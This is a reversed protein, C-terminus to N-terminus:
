FQDQVNSGLAKWHDFRPWPGLRYWEICKRELRKRQSALASVHRYITHLRRATLSIIRCLTNACSCMGYERVSKGTTPDVCIIDDRHWINCCVLGDMFELENLMNQPTGDFRTVMVHRKEQLTDRDWFYLYVSGDSVIFEQNAEDYTIGWGEHNSPTTKYVFTSLRELTDADYIFGTQSKWTIEIIRNNGDKDVYFTSGEGFYRGSVDVSKEIDFTDPNIKRLKSNDYLGTTEYIAGNKGYSLGQSCLSTFLHIFSISQM